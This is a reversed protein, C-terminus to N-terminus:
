YIFLWKRWSYPLNAFSPTPPACHGFLKNGIYLFVMSYKETPFTKSLLASIILLSNIIRITGVILTHDESPYLPNQKEQWSNWRERLVISGEEIQLFCEPSIFVFSGRKFHSRYMTVEKWLDCYTFCFFSFSSLLSAQCAGRPWTIILPSLGHQWCPDKM